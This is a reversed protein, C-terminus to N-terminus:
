AQTVTYFDNSLSRIAVLLEDASQYREQPVKAMM